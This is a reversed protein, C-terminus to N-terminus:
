QRRCALAIWWKTESRAHFGRIFLKTAVSSPSSLSSALRSRRCSVPNKCVASGRNAAVTAATSLSSRCPSKTNRYTSASSKPTGSFAKRTHVKKTCRRLRRAPGFRLLACGKRLFQEIMAIPVAQQGLMYVRAAALLPSIKGLGVAHHSQYVRCDPKGDAPVLRESIIAWLTSDAVTKGSNM